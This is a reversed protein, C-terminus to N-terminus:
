PNTDFKIAINTADAIRAVRLVFKEDATPFLDYKSDYLDPNMVKSAVDALFTSACVYAYGKWWFNDFWTNGNEFWRTCSPLSGSYFATGEGVTGMFVYAFPHALSVEVFPNSGPLSEWKCAPPPSQLHVDYYGNGWFGINGVTKRAARISAFFVKLTIPTLGPQFCAGCNNNYGTPAPTIGM